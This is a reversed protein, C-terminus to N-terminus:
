DLVKKFAEGRRRARINRKIAEYIDNKRGKIENSDNTLLSYLLKLDILTAERLVKEKTSSKFYNEVDDSSSFAAYNMKIGSMAQFKKETLFQYNEKFISKKPNSKPSTEKQTEKLDGIMKELKLIDKELQKEGISVYINKLKTLYVVIDRNVM